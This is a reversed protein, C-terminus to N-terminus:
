VSIKCRFMYPIPILFITNCWDEIHIYGKQRFIIMM